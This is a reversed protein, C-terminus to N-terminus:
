SQGAEDLFLEVQLWWRPQYVAHVPIEALVGSAGYLLEFDTSKGSARNRAEFRAHIVDRYSHPGIHTERRRESARLTLDCLTGHYIYPLSSTGRKSQGAGARAHATVDRHILDTLAVLFGPRTGSALQARRRTVGASEHEVLELLAEVDRFTLDRAVHITTIGSSAENANVTARIAKFVYQGEQAEKTIHAQAEDLSQENSQKMVGLLRANSGRAEEAIYGWRNIRRPARAPDSGILLEFGADGDQSRRWVMRAGGVNDRGIWFMLLPRIKATMRYSHEAVIPISGVRRPVAPAGIDSAANVAQAAVGLPLAALGLLVSALVRARRSAMM